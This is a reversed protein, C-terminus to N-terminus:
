IIQVWGGGGPGIALVRITGGYNPGSLGQEVLDSKRLKRVVAGIGAAYIFDVDQTMALLDNLDVSTAVVALDSKQRKEVIQQDGAVYVSETDNILVQIIDNYESSTAVWTLDSKLLKQVNYSGFQGGGCYVHTADVCLSNIGGPVPISPGTAVSTLDSKQLKTVIGDAGAVYVHTADEDMAWQTFTFVSSQTAESLDSKNLKKVRLTTAGSVYVYDADAARIIHITGGYDASEAVQVLDKSRLKKVTQTTVGGVYVFGSDAALGLINGGYSSSTAVLTLARTLKKVTQATGGEYIFGM